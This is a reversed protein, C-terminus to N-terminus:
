VGRTLLDELESIRALATLDPPLNTYRLTHGARKAEALWELLVALGASDCASVGACDVVLAGGQAARLSQTGLEAARRASAFTLPGDAVFRGDTARTLRFVGAPADESTVAQAASM